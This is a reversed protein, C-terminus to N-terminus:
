TQDRLWDRLADGIVRWSRGGHATGIAQNFQGITIGLTDVIEKRLQAYQAATAPVNDPRRNKGQGGNVAM